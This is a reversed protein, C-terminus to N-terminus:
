NTCTLIDLSRVACVAVQFLWSNDTEMAQCPQFNDGGFFLQNFCHGNFRCAIELCITKLFRLAVTYRWVL